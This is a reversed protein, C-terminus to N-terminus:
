FRTEVTTVVDRRGDARARDRGPGGSLRDRSGDRAVLADHGRGGALRDRGPGGELRDHGRGGRLVDNGGRGRIVDAGGVGYLVDDGPTGVLVDRGPTGVIPQPRVPRPPAGHCAASGSDAFTKGAEALFEWSYAGDRLTLKLVGYADANVVESNRHRAVVPYLSRGGTGVTFQRIGFADDRIGLSSQPTFREYLHDHGNLVVEAGAEHLAQWLAETIANSGHPGSSFRPHHWYALTCSAGSAALDARLWEHQPSSRGCGGVATCNSNLAVVHWPGLDYSYYGKSPDGAAAGFYGFYGAAGPTAYEHNGPSPRTRAKHRGWSPGFCAAFEEPTGHEYVNDGLTAITGTQADLIAATAEDGSSSCDAIDGAALLVPDDLLSGGTSLAVGTAVPCATLATALAAVVGILYILRRELL